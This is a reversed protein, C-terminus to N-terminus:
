QQVMYKIARLKAKAETEHDGTITASSFSVIKEIVFNFRGWCDGIYGTSVHDDSWGNYPNAFVDHDGYRNEFEPRAKIWKYAQDLLRSYYFDDMPDRRNALDKIEAMVETVASRQQETFYRNWKFRSVPSSMLPESTSVFHNSPKSTAHM